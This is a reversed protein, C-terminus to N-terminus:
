RRRSAACPRRTTKASGIWRAVSVSVSHHSRCAPCGRSSRRIRVSAPSEVPNPAISSSGVNLIEPSDYSGLGWLFARAMDRSYTLERLPTGDGWVVLPADSHRGEYFRRMLASPMSASELGFDDGEGFIGNPVLGIVNLGYEGRYARVAPEILRKAYAYSYNSEHAPGCHISEEKIPQPAEPPYMGSSLAMVLKPVRALRAAELMNITMMVNDRLLTAPYRLSLAVGGSTAALHLIADARTGLVLRRCAASDRLDCDVRTSFVFEHQPYESAIARVAYGLVGASGTVLVRRRM